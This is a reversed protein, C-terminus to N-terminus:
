VQMSEEARKIGQVGQPGQLCLRLGEEESVQFPLM